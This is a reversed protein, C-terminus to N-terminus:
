IYMCVTYIYIYVCAYLTHRSIYIYVCVHLRRKCSVVHRLVILFPQRIAFSCIWMRKEEQRITCPGKYVIQALRPQVAATSPPFVIMKMLKRNKAGLHVFQLKCFSLLFACSSHLVGCVPAIEFFTPQAIKPRGIEQHQNPLKESKPVQRNARLLLAGCLIVFVFLKWELVCSRNPIGSGFGSCFCM